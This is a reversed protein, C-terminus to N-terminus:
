AQPKQTAEPTTRPCKDCSLGVSPLIKEQRTLCTLYNLTMSRTDGTKHTVIEDMECNVPGFPGDCNMTEDEWRCSITAHKEANEILTRVYNESRDQTGAHSFSLVLM